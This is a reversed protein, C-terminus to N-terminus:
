DEGRLRPSASHHLTHRVYRRFVRTGEHKGLGLLVDAVRM